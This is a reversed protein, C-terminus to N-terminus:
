RDNRTIYLRIFEGVSELDGEVSNLRRAIEPSKARSYGTGVPDIFVLDTQDLWTYPNDILQFPPPPMGGNDLLKAGRPGMAGMHLWVASSGPGGNFAFTLPRKAADPGGDLTYAVYFIHAETEGRDNKIPMQGATATYDLTRGAATIKHHTVVPTEDVAEAMATPAAAGAHEPKGETPRTERGTRGEAPAAAASDPEVAGPQHPRGHVSHPDEQRPPQALVPGTLVLALLGVFAKM